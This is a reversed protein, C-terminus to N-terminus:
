NDCWLYSFGQAVASTRLALLVGLFGNSLHSIFFRSRLDPARANARLATTASPIAPHALAGSVVVVSSVDPEDSVVVSVASDYRMAMMGFAMLM